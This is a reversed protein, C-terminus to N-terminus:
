FDDPRGLPRRPRTRRRQAGDLDAAALGFVNRAFLPPTSPLDKVQYALFAAPGSRTCCIARPQRKQAADADAM